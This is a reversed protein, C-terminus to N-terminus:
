GSAGEYTPVYQGYTICSSLFAKAEPSNSPCGGEAMYKKVRKCYRPHHKGGSGPLGGTWGMGKFTLTDSATPTLLCFRCAGEPWKGDVKNYQEDDPFMLYRDCKIDVPRAKAAAPYLKNAEGKSTCGDTCKRWDIMANSWNKDNWAKDNPEGKNGQPHPFEPVKQTPHSSKPPPVYAPAVPTPPPPPPIPPLAAVVQNHKGRGRSRGTQVPQTPPNIPAVLNATQAQPPHNQNGGYAKQKKFKSDPHSAEWAAEKPTLLDKGIKGVNFYKLPSPNRQNETKQDFKASQEYYIKNYEEAMYKGRAQNVEDNGVCLLYREHIAKRDQYSDFCTISNLVFENASRLRDVNIMSIYSQIIQEGLTQLNHGEVRSDLHDWEYQNNTTFRTGSFSDDLVFLIVQAHFYPEEILVEDDEFTKFHECLRVHGTNRANSSKPKEFRTVFSRIIKLWQCGYQLPELLASSVSPRFKDYARSVEDNSGFLGSELELGNVCKQLAENRKLTDIAGRGRLPTADEKAKICFISLHYKKRGSMDVVKCNLVKNAVSQNKGSFSLMAKRDIVPQIQEGDRNTGRPQSRCSVAVSPVESQVSVDGDSDDDSSDRDSDSDSSDPPGDDGPDGDPGQDTPTLTPTQEQPAKLAELHLRSTKDTIQSPTSERDKQKKTSSKAQGPPSSLNATNDKKPPHETCRSILARVYLADPLTDIMQSEYDPRGMDLLEKTHPYTLHQLVYGLGNTRMVEENSKALLEHPLMTDFGIGFRGTWATADTKLQNRWETAKPHHLWKAIFSQHRGAFNDPGVAVDFPPLDLSDNVQAKMSSKPPARLSTTSSPGSVQISTQPGDIPNEELAPGDATSEVFAIRKDGEKVPITRFGTPPSSTYILPPMAPFEESPSPPKENPATSTGWASPPTPPVMSILGCAPGHNGPHDQCSQCCHSKHWTVQFGCGNPCATPGTGPVVNAKSLRPALASPPAQTRDPRYPAAEIKTGVGCTRPRAPFRNNEYQILARVKAADPMRRCAGPTILKIESSWLSLIQYEIFHHEKSLINLLCRTADSSHSGDPLETATDLAMELQAPLDDPLSLRWQTSLENNTWLLEFTHELSVTQGHITYYESPADVQFPALPVPRAATPVTQALQNQAQLHENPSPASQQQREREKRLAERHLDAQLTREMKSDWLLNRMEEAHLEKQERLKCDMEKEADSMGTLIAERIKAEANLVRLNNEAEVVAKAKSDALKEQQMTKTRERHHSCSSLLDRNQANLAKTLTAAELRKEEQDKKESKLLSNTADNATKAAQLKSEALSARNAEMTWNAQAAELATQISEAEVEKAQSLKKLAELDNSDKETKHRSEVLQEVLKEKDRLAAKEKEEFEAIRAMLGLCTQYSADQSVPETGFPSYDVPLPTCPQVPASSLHGAVGAETALSDATVQLESAEFADEPIPHAASTETKAIRSEADELWQSTEHDLVSSDPTDLQKPSQSRAGTDTHLMPPPLLEELPPPSMSGRSPSNSGPPSPPLSPLNSLNAHQAELCLECNSPRGPRLRKDRLTWDSNRGDHHMLYHTRCLRCSVRQDQGEQMWTATSAHLECCYRESGLAEDAINEHPRANNSCGELSCQMNSPANGLAPVSSVLPRSRGGAILFAQARDLIAHHAEVTTWLEYGDRGQHDLALEDTEHQCFACNTTPCLQLVADHRDASRQAAEHFCSLHAECTKWVMEQDAIAADELMTHVQGHLRCCFDYRNQFRRNKCGAFGCEQEGPECASVQPMLHGDLLFKIAHKRGCFDLRKGSSEVYCTEMCGPLNCISHLHEPRLRGFLLDVSHTSRQLPNPAMPDIGSVYDPDTTYPLPTLDERPPPSMSRTSGPPSPPPSLGEGTTPPSPPASHRPPTMSRTSYTTKRGVDRLRVPVWEGKRGQCFFLNNAPHFADSVPAGRLKGRSNCSPKQHGKHALKDRLAQAGQALRASYRTSPPAPIVTARREAAQRRSPNLRNPKSSASAQQDRGSTPRSAAPAYQSCGTVVSQRDSTLVPPPLEPMAVMNAYVSENPNITRGSTPQESSPGVTPQLHCFRCGGPTQNQHVTESPISNVQDYLRDAESRPPLPTYLPDKYGHVAYGLWQELSQDISTGGQSLILQVVEHVLRPDEKELERQCKALTCKCVKLQLGKQPPGFTLYVLHAVHNRNGEAAEVAQLSLRKARRESLTDLSAVVSETPRLMNYDKSKPNLEPHHRPPLSCTELPHGLNASADSVAPQDDYTQSARNDENGEDSRLRAAWDDKRSRPQKTPLSDQYFIRFLSEAWVQLHQFKFTIQNKDTLSEEFCYIGDHHMGFELKLELLIPHILQLRSHETHTSMPELSHNDSHWEIWNGVRREYSGSPKQAPFLTPIGKRECDEIYLWLIAEIREIGDAFRAMQNHHPAMYEDRNNANHRIYCSLRHQCDAVEIMACVFKEPIVRHGIRFQIYQSWNHHLVKLQRKAKFLADYNRQYGNDVSQQHRGIDARTNPSDQNPQRHASRTPCEANPPTPSPPPSPPPSSVRVGVTVSPQTAIDKLPQTNSTGLVPASALRATAHVEARLADLPAQAGRVETSRQKTASLAKGFLNQLRRKLSAKRETPKLPKSDTNGAKSVDLNPLQEVLDALEALDPSADHGTESSTSAYLARRYIPKLEAWHEELTFRTMPLTEWEFSAGNEDSPGIRLDAPSCPPSPLSNTSHACGAVPMDDGSTEPSILDIIGELETSSSDDGECGDCNCTCAGGENGFCLDCWGQDNPWVPYTCGKCACKGTSGDGDPELHIPHKGPVALPLDDPQTQLIRVFSDIMAQRMGINTAWISSAEFEEASRTTARDGERQGETTQRIVHLDGMDAPIFYVKVLYKRDGSEVNTFETHFRSLAHPQLNRVIQEPLHVEELCERLLTAALNVDTLTRTGGPTDLNGGKTRHWCYILGTHIDYFVAKAAHRRGRVDTYVEPDGQPVSPRVETNLCPETPPSSLPKSDAPNDPKGFRFHENASAQATQIETLAAASVSSSERDYLRNMHISDESGSDTSASTPDASSDSHKGPKIKWRVTGDLGHKVYYRVTEQPAERTVLHSDSTAELTAVASSTSCGEETGLEKGTSPCKFWQHFGNPSRYPVTSLESEPNFLKEGDDANVAYCHFGERSTDLWITTGNSTQGHVYGPKPYDALAIRAQALAHKRYRTKGPDSTPTGRWKLHGPFIPRLTALSTELQIDSSTRTTAPRAECKTRACVSAYSPYRELFEQHEAETLPPPVQLGCVCPTSTTGDDLGCICTVDDKPSIRQSTVASIACPFLSMGQPVLPSGSDFVYDKTFRHSLLLSSHQQAIKTVSVYSQLAEEPAKLYCLWSCFFNDASAKGCYMCTNCDACDPLLLRGGQCLCKSKCCQWYLTCGPIGCPTNTIPVVAGDPAMGVAPKSFGDPCICLECQRQFQEAPTDTDIEDPLDLPENIKLVHLVVLATDTSITCPTHENNNAQITVYASEQGFSDTQVVYENAYRLQLSACSLRHIDTIGTLRWAHGPDPKPQPLQFTVPVTRHPPVLLPQELYLYKSSVNSCSLSLIDAAFPAISMADAKALLSSKIKSPDSGCVARDFQTQPSSTPRDTQVITPGNGYLRISPNLRKSRRPQLATPPRALETSGEENTDAPTQNSEQLAQYAEILCPEVFQRPQLWTREPYGVWSVQYEFAPPPEAKSPRRGLIQDILWVDSGNVTARHETDLQILDNSQGSAATGAPSPPPSPVSSVVPAKGNYWQDPSRSTQQNFLSQRLSRTAQQEGNRILRLNAVQSVLLGMFAMITLTLNVSPTGPITPLDPEVFSVIQEVLSPGGALGNTGGEGLKNMLRAIRFYSGSSLESPHLARSCYHDHYCKDCEGYIHYKHDRWNTGIASLDLLSARVHDLSEDLHFHRPFGKMNSPPRIFSQPRLPCVYPEYLPEAADSKQQDFDETVEHSLETVPRNDDPISLGQLDYEHGFHIGCGRCQLPRSIQDATLNDTCQQVHQNVAKRVKENGARRDKQKYHLAQLWDITGSYDVGPTLNTQYYLDRIWESESDDDGPNTRIIHELTGSQRCRQDLRAASVRMDGTFINLRGEENTFFLGQAESAQTLHELDSLLARSRDPLISFYPTQRAPVPIRDGGTMARKVADALDVHGAARLLDQLKLHPILHERPGLEDQLHLHDGFLVRTVKLSVRLGHFLTAETSKNETMSAGVRQKAPPNLHGGIAQIMESILHSENGVPTTMGPVKPNSSESSINPMGMTAMTTLFDTDREHRTGTVINTISDVPLPLVLNDGSAFLMVIHGSREAYMDSDSDAHRQHAEESQAQESARGTTSQVYETAADPLNNHRHVDSLSPLPPHRSTDDESSSPSSLDISSKSQTGVRRMMSPRPREQLVPRAWTTSAEQPIETNSGKSKTELRAQKPPPPELKNDPLTKKIRQMSEENKPSDRASTKPVVGNNPLAQDTEHPPPGQRATNGDLALLSLESNTMPNRHVEPDQVQEEPPQRNPITSSQHVEEVAEPHPNGKVHKKSREGQTICSQRPELSSNCLPNHMPGEQEEQPPYISPSKQPAEDTAGSKPNGTSHTESREDQSECSQLPLENAFLSPCSAMSSHTPVNSPPEKLPSNSLLFGDPAKVKQNGTIHTESRENKSECSLLPAKNASLESRYERSDSNEYVDAELAFEQKENTVSGIDKTENMYTTESTSDCEAM